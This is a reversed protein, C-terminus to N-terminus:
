LIRSVGCPITELNSILLQMSPTTAQTYIDMKFSFNKSEKTVNKNSLNSQVFWQGKFTVFPYLKQSFQTHTACKPFSITKAEQLRFSHM